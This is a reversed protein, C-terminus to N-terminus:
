ITATLKITPPFRLIRIFGGVQRLDSVFKIVYHKVSYVEGCVTQVRLTLPSLCQNCLYNTICGVVMRDRGRRGRFCQLLCLSKLLVKLIASMFEYCYHRLLSVYYLWHAITHMTLERFLVSIVNRRLKLFLFSIFLILFIFLLFVTELIIM